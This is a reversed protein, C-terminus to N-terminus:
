TFQNLTMSRPDEFNSKKHFNRPKNSCTNTSQSTFDFLSLTIHFQILNSLIEHACSNSPVAGFKLWIELGLGYVRFAVFLSNGSNPSRLLPCVFAFGSNTMVARGFGLIQRRREISVKRGYFSCTFHTSVSSNRGLAKIM